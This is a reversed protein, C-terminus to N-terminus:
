PTVLVLDADAVFIIPVALKEVFIHALWDTTLMVSFNEFSPFNLDPLALPFHILFAPPVALIVPRTTKFYFSLSGINCGARQARM